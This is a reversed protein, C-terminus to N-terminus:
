EMYEFVLAPYSVWVGMMDTKFIRIGIPRTRLKVRESDSVENLEVNSAIYCGRHNHYAQYEYAHSTKSFMIVDNYSANKMAYVSSFKRGHPILLIALTVLCLAVIVILVGILIKKKM